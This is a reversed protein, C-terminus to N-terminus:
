SCILFASPCCGAPSSMFFGEAAAPRLPGRHRCGRRAIRQRRHSPNHETRHLDSRRGDIPLYGSSGLTLLSVLLPNRQVSRRGRSKHQGACDRQKAFFRIQPLFSARWRPIGAVATSVCDPQLHDSISDDAAACGASIGPTETGGLLIFLVGGAVTVLMTIRAPLTRRLLGALLLCPQGVLLGWGSWRLGPAQRREWVLYAALPRDPATPITTMTRGTTALM